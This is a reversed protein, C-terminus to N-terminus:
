DTLAPEPAHPCSLAATRLELDRWVYCRQIDVYGLSDASPVEVTVLENPGVKHVRPEIPKSVAAAAREKRAERNAQREQESSGKGCAALLGLALILAPRHM